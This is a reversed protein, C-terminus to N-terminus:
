EDEDWRLGGEESWRPDPDNRQNNWYACYEGYEARTLEGRAFMAEIRRVPDEEEELGLHEALEPFVREPVVIAWTEAETRIVQVECHFQASLTSADAKAKEYTFHCDVARFGRPIM